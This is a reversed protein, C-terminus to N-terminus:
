RGVELVGEVGGEQGAETETMGTRGGRTGVERDSGPDPM